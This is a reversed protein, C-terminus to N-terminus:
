SVEALSAAEQDDRPVRTAVRLAMSVRVATGSGPSSLIALSAGLQEARQRISVLGMGGRRSATNLDFGKGTDVVELDVVQDLARIRVRISTAGSHKLANNLAEQAIWYLGDEAAPDLDSVGEVLLEADVGARREVADLRQQLAGVLGEQELALPRLEYVLLRMERLAQQATESLRRLYHQARALNGAGAVRSGAEALLTLSYVSQTASDHLERALRQREELIAKGQVQALLRANEVAVGLQDGIASLLAVEEAGLPRNLGHVVGLVGLVTRKSHVPVGTYARPGLIRLAAPARSDTQVNRVTLPKDHHLVWGALGSEGTDPNVAERGMASLGRSAALHLRGEDFLHILGVESGVVALIRDLSDDLLTELDPSASTLSTVDYLATLQRTHETVQKELTQYALIPETMDTIFGEIALVEGNPSCVGRGHETVWKETAEATTIRYTLRFPRGDHLAVQIRDLIAARVDPDILEAYSVKRNTILESPQYGTLDLCGESVFEMTRDPDARCRYAMGPLNSLLAALAGRTEQLAKEARRRREVDRKLENAASAIERTREEVAATLTAQRSIASYALGVVLGVIMLGFARFVLRPEEVVHDWGGEPIAALEWSVGSLEISHFIPQEEFVAAEGFLIQGSDDRLAMEIGLHRERPRIEDMITAIDLQASVRWEFADDQGLPLTATCTSGASGSSSVPCSVSIQDSPVLPSTGSRAKGGDDQVRDHRVSEWGSEDRAVWLDQKGQSAVAVASVGDVSGALRATYTELVARVSAPDHQEDLAEHIYLARLGELLEFRRHVSQTLSIAYPLLEHQVHARRDELLRGEYWESTLGWAPLLVALLAM